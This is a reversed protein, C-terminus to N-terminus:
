PMLLLVPPLSLIQCMMMHICYPLPPRVGLVIGCVQAIPLIFSVPLRDFIILLYHYYYHIALAIFVPCDVLEDTSLAKKEEAPQSQQM